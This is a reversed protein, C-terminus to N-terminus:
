QELIVWGSECKRRERRTGGMMRGPKGCQWASSPSVVSRLALTAGDAVPDIHMVVEGGLVCLKIGHWSIGKQTRSVM